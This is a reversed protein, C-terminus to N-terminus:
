LVTKALQIFDDMWLQPKMNVGLEIVKVWVATNKWANLM